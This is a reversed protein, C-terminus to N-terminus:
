GRTSALVPPPGGMAYAASKQEFAQRREARRARILIILTIPGNVLFKQANWIFLLVVLNLWGPGGAAGDTGIRLRLKVAEGAFKRISDRKNPDTPKQDAM